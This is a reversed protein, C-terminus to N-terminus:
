SDFIYLIAHKNEIFHQNKLIKHGIRLKTSKIFFHTKAMFVFHGFTM